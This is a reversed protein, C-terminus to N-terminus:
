LVSLSRASVRQGERVHCYYLGAKLGSVDVPVQCQGRPMARDVVRRVERGVVDRLVVQVHGGQCEFTCTARDQAPNPFVSFEAVELEAAPTSGTVTGQRIVPVYPFQGVRSPLLTNILTQPVQFWDKLISAYIARFDIQMPLNEFFTPEDPITPNPGHIIPNVSTGFVIMPGAEGHDTGNASNSLIRRGFESFTMGVVRDQVRLRRLDDQFADLAGSLYGLLKAHEGTTNGDGGDVQAGHTDFGGLSCVYVRTQLGGAVLQAVIKLQDALPNEGATPYLPSLNQARAAAQQIATVYVETQRVVQRIFTLEHGAPTNPATDVGGTLLQLFSSTSNIAMGMNVAPGQVVNSVVSGITIALPHPAQANPYGIPFGPYENNLYRGGWGSSNLVNSDTASTWIDTSDFHSGTADPYGVNQVIGIQGNDFLNKVKAMAPHIGTAARLPLVRNQAIAVNPRARLLNTYQDLPIITNLGDNGGILQILVLVRDTQTASGTLELFEPSFGYTSIPLGGLLTPLVTAAATTQLFHRRQM